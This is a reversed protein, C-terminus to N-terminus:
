PLGYIGNLDNILSFNDSLADFYSLDFFDPEFQPLMPSVPVNVIPQDNSTDMLQEVPVNIDIIKELDFTGEDFLEESSIAEINEQVTKSMREIEPTNINPLQIPSKQYHSSAEAESEQEEEFNEERSSEDFLKRLDKRCAGVTSRSIKLINGNKSSRYVANKRTHSPNPVNKLPSVSTRFGFQVPQSASYMTLGQSVNIKLDHYEGNTDNINAFVPAHFSNECLSQAPREYTPDIIYHYTRLGNAYPVFHVLRVNTLQYITVGNRIISSGLVAKCPCRVQGLREVATECYISRVHM